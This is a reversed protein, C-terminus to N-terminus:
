AKGTLKSIRVLSANASSWTETLLDPVPLLVSSGLLPVGAQAFGLKPDAGGGDLLVEPQAFTEQAPVKSEGGPGVPRWENKDNIVNLTCLFLTLRHRAM